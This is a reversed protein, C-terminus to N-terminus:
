SAQEDHRRASVEGATREVIVNGDLEALPTLKDPPARYARFSEVSDLHPGPFEHSYFERSAVMRRM